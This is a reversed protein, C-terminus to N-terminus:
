KATINLFLNYLSVKLIMEKVMNMYKKAIVHEGDFLRKLSSFVSEAIWSYGYQVKNKWRKTM